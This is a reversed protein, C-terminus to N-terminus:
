AVRRRAITAVAAPLGFIVAFVPLEERFSYSAQTIGIWMNTASALFWITIFALTTDELASGGPKGFRRALLFSVAWIALGSLIIIATRM